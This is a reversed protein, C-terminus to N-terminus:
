LDVKGKIASAPVSSSIHYLHEWPSNDAADFTITSPSSTAKESAAPLSVGCAERDQENQPSLQVNQNTFTFGQSSSDEFKDTQGKYSKGESGHYKQGDNARSEDWSTKYNEYNDKVSYQLRRPEGSKYSRESSGLSRSQHGSRYSEFKDRTDHDRSRKWSGENLTDPRHWNQDKEKSRIGSFNVARGDEQYFNHRTSYPERTQEERGSFSGRNKEVLNHGQHSRQHGYDYGTMKSNRSDGRFNRDREGSKSWGRGWSRGRRENSTVEQIVGEGSFNEAHHDQFVFNSTMSASNGSSSSAISKTQAGQPAQSETGQKEKADIFDFLKWSRPTEQRYEGGDDDEPDRRRGRGRGRGRGRRERDGETPATPWRSQHDRSQSGSILGPKSSSRGRSQVKEGLRSKPPPIVAEIDVVQSSQLSLAKIGSSLRNEESHGGPIRAPKSELFGEKKKSPDFYSSPLDMKARTSSERSPSSQRPRQASTDTQRRSASSSTSDSSVKGSGSSSPSKAFKVFQPPGGEKVENVRGINDPV